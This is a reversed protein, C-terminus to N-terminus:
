RYGKPVPMVIEFHVGPFLETRRVNSREVDEPDWHLHELFRDKICVDGESIKLMADYTFFESVRESLVIQCRDAHIRVTGKNSLVTYIVGFLGNKRWIRLMMCEILAHLYDNLESDKFVKFSDNKFKIDKRNLDFTKKMGVGFDSLGIKLQRDKSLYECLLYCNSHGHFLANHTLEALIRTADASFDYAEEGPLLDDLYYKDRTSIYSPTYFVSSIYEWVEGRTIKSAVSRLEDINFCSCKTNKKIAKLMRTTESTSTYQWGSEFYFVTNFNEKFDIASLYKQLNESGQTPPVKFITKFNSKFNCWEGLTALYPIVIPEISKIDEMDFIFPSNLTNNKYFYKNIFPVVENFFTFSTIKEGKIIDKFKIENSRM